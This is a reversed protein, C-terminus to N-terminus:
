DPIRKLFNIKRKKLYNDFGKEKIYKNIEKDFGDNKDYKIIMELNFITENYNKFLFIINKNKLNDKIFAYKEGLIMQYSQNKIEPLEIELSSLLEFLIEKKIILFDRPYSINEDGIQIPELNIKFLINKDKLMNKRSEYLKYREILANKDLSQINTINKIDSFNIYENENIEKSEFIKTLINVGKKSIILYEEFKAEDKIHENIMSNINNIEKFLKELNTYILNMKEKIKKEIEDENQEQNINNNIIITKENINNNFNNSESQIEIKGFYSIIQQGNDNFLKIRSKDNFIIQYFTNSSENLTDKIIIVNKGSYDSSDYGLNKLIEENIFDVDGFIKDPEDYIILKNMNMIELQNNELTETLARFDNFNYKIDNMMLLYDFFEKNVLYIKEDTKNGKKLNLYNVIASKFDKNNFFTSIKTNDENEHNNEKIRYYYILGSSNIESIKKYSDNEIDYEYNNKFAKYILSKSQIICILDYKNTEYISNKFLKKNVSIIIKPDENIHVIHHTKDKCISCIMEYNGEKSDLMKDDILLIHLDDKKNHCKECNKNINFFFLKMISPASVKDEITGIEKDLERLVSDYLSIGELNKYHSFVKFCRNAYDNILKTSKNINCLIHLLELNKNNQIKEQNDQLFSKIEKVKVLSQLFLSLSFDTQKSKQISNNDVKLSVTQGNKGPSASGM